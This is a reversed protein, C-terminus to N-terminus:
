VGTAGTQIRDVRCWDKFASMERLRDAVFRLVATLGVAISGCFPNPRDLLIIMFDWAAVGILLSIPPVLPGLVLAPNRAKATFEGRAAHRRPDSSTLEPVPL